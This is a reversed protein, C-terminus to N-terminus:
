PISLSDKLLLCEVNPDPFDLIWAGFARATAGRRALYDALVNLPPDLVMVPFEYHMHIATTDALTSVLVSCDVECIVRRFGRHWALRLVDRMAVAEVRFANDGAVGSFCGAVWKDHHDRIVGGGGIRQDMDRFSGDSNCKVVDLPPPFWVNALLLNSTAFSRVWDDHDHLLKRWAVEFPWPQPDLLSNCRLKWSTWLSALIKVGQSGRALSSAWTSIKSCRFNPWNTAGLRQIADQVILWVFMRVKEPVQLKWVCGIKRDELQDHHADNLWAYADTVSYIGTNGVKWIWADRHTPCLIHPIALLSQSVSDPLPTYLRELNLSNDTALKSASGSGLKIELVYYAKGSRPIRSICKSTLSLRIISINIIKHEFVNVWLKNPKQVMQWVAKRLLATNFQNM